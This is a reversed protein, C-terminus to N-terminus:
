TLLPLLEMGLAERYTNHYHHLAPENRGFVVHDIGPSGASFQQSAAAVYDEDRIVSAFTKARLEAMEPEAHGPEVYFNIQSVHRGPDGPVPYARVLSVGDQSPLLQVNPFIWYAPLTARRLRWESEPELRMEDIERRCLIMRHNRGYTDYLQVNGHFVPSLTNQHLVPFHYTEGFTDMALKWNLAMDYTDTTLVELGSFDWSALEADLEPGLQADLDIEGDPNPHVFLLGHREESPLEVLGHCDRDIDGFHEPKPLGILAGENSYTWGHFPCTFARAEGRARTEVVVGRHRCVNLFANFEGEANRTCIIPSGLDNWTFFSDNAPLDGSLGLLHTHNRFFLEWEQQALRPDIYVSTPNHRMGGADVNTGADLREMLIKLLRVQEDHQM